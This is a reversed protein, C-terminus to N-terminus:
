VFGDSHQHLCPVRVIRERNWLVDLSAKVYEEPFHVNGSLIDGVSGRAIIFVTILLVHAISLLINRTKM